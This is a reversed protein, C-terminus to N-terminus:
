FKKCENSIEEKTIQKFACREREFRINPVYDIPTFLIREGDIASDIAYQIAINATEKKIIPLDYVKKIGIRKVAYEIMDRDRGFLILRKAYASLMMAIGQYSLEESVVDFCGTVITIKESFGVFAAEALSPLGTNLQMYLRINRDMQYCCFHEPHGYFTRCVERIVSLDTYRCTLAIATLYVGLNREGQLLLDDLCIIPVKQENESLMIVKEQSLWVGRELPGRMGFFSVDKFIFKNKFLGGLFRYDYNAILCFHQNLNSLYDYLDTLLDRYRRYHYLPYSSINTIVVVDPIVSVQELEPFSACILIFDQQLQVQKVKEKEIRSFCAVKFGAQELIRRILEMCNTKGYSGTILIIQAHNGCLCKINKM